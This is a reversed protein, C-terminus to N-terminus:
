LRCTFWLTRQRICKACEFIVDVECAANVDICCWFIIAVIQFVCLNGVYITRTGNFIFDKSSFLLISHAFKSM